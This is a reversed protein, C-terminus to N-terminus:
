LWRCFVHRGHSLQMMPCRTAQVPDAAVAPKLRWMVLGQAHLRSSPVICNGTFLRRLVMEAMWMPSSFGAMCSM